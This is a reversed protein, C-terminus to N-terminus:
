ESIMNRENVWDVKWQGKKQFPTTNSVHVIDRSLVSLYNKNM